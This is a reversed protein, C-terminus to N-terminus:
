AHSRVGAFLVCLVPTPSVLAPRPPADRQCAVCIASSSRWMPSLASVRRGEEDSQDMSRINLRRSQYDTCNSTSSIEGYDGRGPMWAECDIKRFASAGLDGSPLELVRYHLGLADWLERQVTVLAEFEAESNEPAAVSFMEVKSFQHVRYIGKVAAGAGGAETRFCHSFSVFRLPLVSSHLTQNSLYAAVSHESTGVLSLDSHALRYIQSTTQPADRPQFGCAESFHSRLLDPSMLPVFGRAALRQMAFSVLALELLALEHKLFYFRAGIIQSARNMDIWDYLLSLSLHDLLKGANEPARLATLVEDRTTEISLRSHDILAPRAAAGASAGASQPDNVVAIVRGAGEDGIPTHESILNPLKFAREYLEQQLSQLASEMQLIEEKMQKSSQVLAAAGSQAGSQASAKIKDSIQNRETRKLRLAMEDRRFQEYLAL